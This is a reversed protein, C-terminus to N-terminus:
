AVQMIVKGVHRRDTVADHADAIRELPYVAGIEHSLMGQELWATIDRIGAQRVEADLLYVSRFHITVGAMLLQQVVIEPKMNAASGYVYIEGDQRIVALDVAYNSGWEVEIIRDVRQGGNAALLDARLSSTRHNVVVDAGARQVSAIRDNAGVTAIVRRAGKAKAIQVAYRGVAGSAGHILVTKDMVASGCTVARYATQLPVGICAGAHFSTNDPLPVAREAPLTVYEAATGDARGFQANWLWVRQGVRSQDVGPGVAEIVGAGDNHPVIRPYPMETLVLGARNKVDSPNVGSAYVRVLIEGTAPPKIPLEAVQLVHRAPGFESYYVAKM